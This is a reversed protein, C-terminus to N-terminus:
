DSCVRDNENRTKRKYISVNEKGGKKHEEQIVKHIM